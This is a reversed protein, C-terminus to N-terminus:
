LKNTYNKQRKFAKHSTNSKEKYYKNELASIRMIAKRLNKSMYPKHNARFVKKKPPAHKNLIKLFILEFKNYNDIVEKQLMQKLEERFNNEVFNKYDRYQILKPESKPISNKLVTLVMKHFDSIGTSITTTNKFCRYCNTILLDICSPNKISKFCTKQKVLNKANHEFLFERLPSEEEEINFDGALLFKDYYSYM